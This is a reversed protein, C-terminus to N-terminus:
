DPRDARVVLVDCDTQDLTDRTVSGLILESLRSKGHKGVAILDPRHTRACERIVSGPMGFEILKQIFRNGPKLEDIFKNIKGLAEEYALLRYHNIADNSVNAYQMQGEFPVEYAHLFTIDAQPAIALAADAAGRSDDSFDVPVLVHQYAGQPEQRVILVPTKSIRTVKDATNGLVLGSFFNGGHAGLLILDAQWNEACAHIDAVANGFRVEMECDVGHKEKLRAARQALERDAHARALVAAETAPTNMIRALIDPEDQERVTLLRAINGSHAQCLLAAREEARGAHVSLDTAILLREFAKM